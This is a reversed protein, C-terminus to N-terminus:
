DHNRLVLPLYLYYQAIFTATVSRDANMTLPSPNVAGTLSGTWGSFVWGGASEATLTVVTGPVYDISGPLVESGLPARAVSGQGVVNLTLTYTLAAVNEDFVYLYATGEPMGGAVGGSDPGVVLTGDACEAPDLALSSIVVNEDELNNARPDAPSGDPATLAYRTLSACQTIPLHLTVPTTGDGFDANDHVGGLKRSLLFVALTGEGQVTYASMLPIDEGEREYGPVSTFTTALMESGSAYRNRLMLALWAPHRRFGGARPLTHSSWSGGSKFAWYEQYGYGNLSSYLWTDLTAVGMGLSKGFLESVATQTATAGASPLYYGGPGGEYAVPRYDALGAATLQARTEAVDAVLNNMDTYSGVLTEQMGHDDFAQFPVDGTEWKPGVYNAHGLYVTLTPVHQVALEGYDTVDAGYNANLVFRIKDDLNHETWWPQAAVNEVFYYHAFLGYEEGGFHVYGPRGFGDWGAYVGAHWTENGFELAIERFEDTWPTGNGRQQYRLYAWPKSQPTDSAPDYPVGLYEVLQLWEVETYEEPLTFYPVVREEPNPGSALAWNLLHPLPTQDGPQINYIFDLDSNAYNSLLREMTSFSFYSLPYFRIAPKHGVEPMAALMEDVSLRHPTFPAFGHAADNRYVVFNDLWVTGPEAIELGFGGHWQTPDPYAPGTFDFTYEQWEGSVTWPTTQSLSGYPGVGVFRVAGSALGEQRLWVSARYAAGPELQSYWQGESDDYGHFLYQVFRDGEHEPTILLELCTDGPETFEPPITGPHTVLTATVGGPVTLLSADERFWELLRPHVDDASLQTKIVTIIAHDGYALQVTDDALYVRNVTGESGDAVWGGDPVLTEGLFIVHDAGSVDQLETGGNYALPQGAADVIRYLRVSAGDGFGSGNQDWMHVGGLSQDWEIWGSGAREVRVLFRIVAPEMGSGHMFNNTAFNTGPAVTTLNAGIPEIDSMVVTNSVIIDAPTQPGGVQAQALQPSALGIYTLALVLVIGSLLKTTKIM